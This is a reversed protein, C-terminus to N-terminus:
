PNKKVETVHYVIYSRYLKGFLKSRDDRQQTAIWLIRLDAVRLRATMQEVLAKTGFPEIRYTNIKWSSMCHWKGKNGHYLPIYEDGKKRLGVKCFSFKSHDKISNKVEKEIESKFYDDAQKEIQEDSTGSEADRSLDELM